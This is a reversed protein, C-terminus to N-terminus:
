WQSLPDEEQLRRYFPADADDNIVYFNDGHSWIGHHKMVDRAENPHCRMFCLPTWCKGIAVRALDAIWTPADPNVWRLEEWKDSHFGALKISGAMFDWLADSLPPSHVADERWSQEVDESYGENQRIALKYYRVHKVASEAVELMLKLLDIDDVLIDNCLQPDSDVLEATLESPHSDAWTAVLGVYRAVDTELSDRPM